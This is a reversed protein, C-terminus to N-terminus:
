NEGYVKLMELQALNAANSTGCAVSLFSYQSVSNDVTVTFATNAAPISYVGGGAALSTGGRVEGMIALTLGTAGFVLARATIELDITFPALTVGSGATIAASSMSVGGASWTTSTLLRETFTFTPTGTTGLRGLAKIRLSKGQAGLNYFFGAPIIVAPLTKQLNDETTFTNLQTSTTTSAYLLESSTGTIFSGGSIGVDPLTLDKFLKKAKDPGYDENARLVFFEAEKAVARDTYDNLNLPGRQEQEWRILERPGIKLEDSVELLTPM